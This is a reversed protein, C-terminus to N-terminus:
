DFPEVILCMREAALIKVKKGARVPVSSIANWYSGQFLVKGSPSLDKIM